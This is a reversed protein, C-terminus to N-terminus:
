AAALDGKLELARGRSVYAMEDAKGTQLVASYQAIADDYRKAAMYVDALRGRAAVDAPDARVAEELAATERDIIPAAPARFRDVAYFAVFAVIGIILLLGIRKIWRNLQAEPMSTLSTVRSM